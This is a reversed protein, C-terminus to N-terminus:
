RKLMLGVALPRQPLDLDEVPELVLVDDVDPVDQPCDTHVAQSVHVDHLTEHLGIKVLQQLCLSQAVVVDAVEEILDESAQRVDM